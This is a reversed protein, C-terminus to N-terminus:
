ILLRVYQTGGLARLISNWILFVGSLVMKVVHGAGLSVVGCV